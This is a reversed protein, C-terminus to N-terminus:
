GSRGATAARPGLRLRWCRRRALVWSSFFDLLKSGRPRARRRRLRRLRGPLFVWGVRLATRGPNRQNLRIAEWAAELTVVAFQPSLSLRGRTSM